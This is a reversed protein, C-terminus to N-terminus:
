RRGGAIAFFFLIIAGGILWGWLPIGLIEQSLDLGEDVTGLAVCTPHPDYGSRVETGTGKTFTGVNACIGGEGQKDWCWGSKCEDSPGSDDIGAINIPTCAQGNAKSCTGETSSVCDGDVCISGPDCYTRVLELYGGEGKVCEDYGKSQIFCTKEGENSCLNSGGQGSITATGIKKGKEGYLALKDNGVPEEQYCKDVLVAWISYSGDNRTSELTITESEGSGLRFTKHVNYPYNEDCNESYSSVTSFIPSISMVGTATSSLVQMELVYDQTMSSGTNKLYFTGTIIKGSVSVQAPQTEIINVGRTPSPPATEDELCLVRTSDVGNPCTITKWINCGNSSICLKYSLSNINEKSGLTCSVDPCTPFHCTGYGTTSATNMDCYHGDISCDADSQCEDVGPEEVVVGPDINCAYCEWYTGGGLYQPAYAEKWKGEYNDYWNILATGYQSQDSCDITKRYVDSPVTGSSTPQCNYCCYQDGFSSFTGVRTFFDMFLRNDARTASVIPAMILTLMVLSIILSNIKKM